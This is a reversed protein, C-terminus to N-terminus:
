SAVTATELMVGLEGLEGVSLAALAPVAGAIERRLTPAHFLGKREALEMLIRGDPRSEEPGRLGRHIAQALGKHNVFAGDKEAWAAGPSLSSALVILSLVTLLRKM